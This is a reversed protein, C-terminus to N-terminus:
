HGSKVWTQMWTVRKAGQKGPDFGEPWRTDRDYRAGTLDASRLDANWFDAACLDAARLDAGRLDANMLDAARLSARRMGAHCLRASNLSAFDLSASALRAGTLDAGTLDARSPTYNDVPVFPHKGDDCLTAGFLNAGRLNTWRLDAGDLDAGALPAYILLAGRLDARVGRYKAVWYPKLRFGLAGIGGLVVATLLLAM